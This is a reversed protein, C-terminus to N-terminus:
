LVDVSPLWEASVATEGNANLGAATDFGNSAVWPGAADSTIPADRESLVLKLAEAQSLKRKSAHFTSAAAAVATTADEAAAGAESPSAGEGSGSDRRAGENGVGGESAGEAKALKVAKGRELHAQQHQAVPGEAEM